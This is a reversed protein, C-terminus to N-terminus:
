TKHVRGCIVSSSPWSTGLTASAVCSHQQMAAALAVGRLHARTIALCGMVRVELLGELEGLADLVEHLVCVLYRLGLM